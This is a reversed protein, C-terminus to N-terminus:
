PYSRPAGPGFVGRLPANCFHVIKPFFFKIELNESVPGGGFSLDPGYSCHKSWASEAWPAGNPLQLGRFILFTGNGGAM